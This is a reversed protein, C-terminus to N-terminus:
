HKLYDLSLSDQRPICKTVHILRGIVSQLTKKSIRQKARVKTVVKLTERVKKEPISLSMEASNILIGLWVVVRSPPQAKEVAEPKSLLDKVFQHDREAKHKDPSLTILDHLYMRAIINNQALVDVIANAVTQMHMSSARLGFPLTIDCYYAGAWNVCLLPWDLPDSRFNKYARSIDVRLM